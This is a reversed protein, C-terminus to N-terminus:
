ARRRRLGGIAAVGALGMLLGAASATATGPTTTCGGGPQSAGTAVCQLQAQGADNTCRLTACNGSTGNAFTCADSAKKGNCETLGTLNGCGGPPLVDARAAAPLLTLCLLANRWLTNKM